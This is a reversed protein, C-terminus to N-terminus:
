NPLRHNPTGQSMRTKTTSVLLWDLLLGRLAPSSISLINSTALQRLRPHHQVTQLVPLTTRIASCRSYASLSHYDLGTVTHRRDPRKGFSGLSLTGRKWHIRREAEKEGGREERKRRRERNNSEKQGTWSTNHLQTSMWSWSCFILSKLCFYLLTPHLLLTEQNGRWFGRLMIQTAHALSRRVAPLSNWCSLAALLNATPTHTTHASLSVTAGLCHSLFVCLSLASPTHTHVTRTICFKVKKIESRPCVPMHGCNDHCRITARHNDVFWGACGRWGCVCVVRTFGEKAIDVLLVSSWGRLM